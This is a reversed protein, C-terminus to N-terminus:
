QTLEAHLAGINPQFLPHAIVVGCVAITLALEIHVFQDAVDGRPAPHVFKTLPLVIALHDQDPGTAVPDPVM